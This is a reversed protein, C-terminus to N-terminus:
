GVWALDFGKNFVFMFILYLVIFIYMCFQCLKRGGLMNQAIINQLSEALFTTLNFNKELLAYRVNRVFLRCFFMEVPYLTCDGVSVGKSTEVHKLLNIKEM